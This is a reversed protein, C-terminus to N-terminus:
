ADSLNTHIDIVVLILTETFKNPAATHRDSWQLLSSLRSRHRCSRWLHASKVNCFLVKARAYKMKPCKAAREKWTTFHGTKCDDQRRSCRAVGKWNPTTRIELASIKLQIGLYTSGMKCAYHGANISFHDCCRLRMKLHRKRKQKLERLLVPVHGGHYWSLFTRNTANIRDM